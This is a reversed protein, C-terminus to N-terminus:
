GPLMLVFGDSEYVYFRWDRVAQPTGLIVLQKRLTAIDNFVDSEGIITEYKHLLSETEDGEAVYTILVKLPANFMQLKNIEEHTKSPRNAHELAVSIWKAYTTYKGSNDRGREEYFMGDLAHYNKNWALLGLHRAIKPFINSRVFYAYSKAEFTVAAQFNSREAKLVADFANRFDRPTIIKM